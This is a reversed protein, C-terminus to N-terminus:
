VPEQRMAEKGAVFGILLPHNIKWYWNLFRRLMSERMDTHMIQRIKIFNSSGLIGIGTEFNPISEKKLSL